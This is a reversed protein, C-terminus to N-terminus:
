DGRGHARPQGGAPAARACRHPRGPHQRARLPVHPGAPPRDLLHVVGDQLGGGHPPEHAGDGAHVDREEGAGRRESGGVRRRAGCGAPRRPRSPPGAGPAARGRLAHPGGPGRVARRPPPRPHTRGGRAHSAPDPRDRQAPQRPPARRHHARRAARAGPPLRGRRRAPGARRLPTRRLAGLRRHGRLLAGRLPPHLADPRGGQRDQPGPRPALGLDHPQRLLNGERGTAQPAERAPPQLGPQRGPPGGAPASGRRGPAARAPGGPIRPVKPLVEAFGMVNLDEAPYLAELGAARLRPGGVGFARVGPRM